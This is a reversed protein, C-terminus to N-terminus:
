IGLKERIRKLTEPPINEIENKAYITILWIQQNYKHYYYVIRVGGRKGRGKAGWRIKRLGATAPIMDGIEPHLTLGWQLIAYEEDELYKYILKSFLSTEIFEV